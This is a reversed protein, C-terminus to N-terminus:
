PIEPALELGQYMFNLLTQWNAFYLYRTLARLDNFFTRRAGLERRMAQYMLCSLDLTTHFLSALLLLTLLLTSLRQKDHGFNHEFNYGRNKLASIGENEVKRRSRGDRDVARAVAVAVAVFTTENLVHDTAWANHYLERSSDERIVRLACWNVRLAKPGEAVTSKRGLSLGM